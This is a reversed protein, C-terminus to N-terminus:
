PPTETGGAHGRPHLRLSRDGPHAACADAYEQALSRQEAIWADSGVTGTSPSFLYEDMKADDFCTVPTSENVGRPDFGVINYSELLAAGFQGFKVGDRVFDVGSAGPGGPNVLLQGLPQKGTARHRILSLELQDGAPADWDIPATIRACEVNSGCNQWTVQQSYIEILDAPVGDLVAAPQESTGGTAGSMVPEISCASLALLGTAALATVGLLASRRVQGRYGGNPIGPPTPEHDRTQKTAM